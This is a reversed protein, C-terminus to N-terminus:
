QLKSCVAQQRNIRDSVFSKYKRTFTATDGYTDLEHFFYNEDFEWFYRNDTKDFSVKTEGDGVWVLNKTHDFSYVWVADTGKPECMWKEISTKVNDTAEGNCAVLVLLLVFSTLSKKM